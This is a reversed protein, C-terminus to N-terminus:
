PLKNVLQADNYVRKTEWIYGHKIPVVLTAHVEVLKRSDPLVDGVPLVDEPRIVLVVRPEDVFVLQLLSESAETLPRVWATRIMQDDSQTNFQSVQYSIVNVFSRHNDQTTFHLINTYRMM